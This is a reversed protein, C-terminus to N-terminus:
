YYRHSHTRPAKGVMLTFLGHREPSVMVDEYVEMFRRELAKNDFKEAMRRAIDDRGALNLLIMGAGGPKAVSARILLCIYKGAAMVTVGNIEEELPAAGWRRLGKRIVSMNCSVSNTDTVVGKIGDPSLEDVNLIFQM